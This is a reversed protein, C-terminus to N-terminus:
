SDVGRWWEIVSLMYVLLFPSIVILAIPNDGTNINQFIALFDWGFNFLPIVLVAMLAFDTRQYYLAIGAVVIGGFLEVITIIKTFLPTTLWSSPSLVMNLLTTNPTNDILGFFYCLLMVGSMIFLYNALKGM